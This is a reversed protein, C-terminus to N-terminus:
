VYRDLCCDAINFKSSFLLIFNILFYSESPLPHLLYIMLNPGLLCSLINIVNFLKAKKKSLILFFHLFNVKKESILNVIAAREIKYAIFIFIGLGLTASLCPFSRFNTLFDIPDV